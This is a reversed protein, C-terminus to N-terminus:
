NLREVVLLRLSRKVNVRTGGYQAHRVVGIELSMVPATFSGQLCTLNPSRTWVQSDTQKLLVIILLSTPRCVTEEEFLIDLIQLEFAEWCLVIQNHALTLGSRGESGCHLIEPMLPKSVWFLPTSCGQPNCSNRCRARNLKQGLGVRHTQHCSIDWDSSPWHVGGELLCYPSVFM